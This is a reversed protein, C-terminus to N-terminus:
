WIVGLLLAARINSTAGDSVLSIKKSIALEYKALCLSIKTEIVDGSHSEAGLPCFGILAKVKSFDPKLFHLYIRFIM